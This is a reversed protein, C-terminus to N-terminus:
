GIGVQNIASGSQEAFSAKQHLFKDYFRIAGVPVGTIVGTSRYYYRVLDLEPPRQRVSFRGTEADGVRNIAFSILASPRGSQGGVASILIMACNELAGLRNPKGAARSQEESDVFREIGFSLEIAMHKARKPNTGRSIGRRQAHIRQREGLAIGLDEM